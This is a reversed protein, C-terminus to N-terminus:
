PIRQAPTPIRARRASTDPVAGRRECVPGTGPGIVFITNGAPDKFGFTRADWVEDRPPQPIEVRDRWAHYCADADQVHLAVCADRGHGSMPCDITLELGGRALGMIGTSGDATDQWQLTFGLRDIYFARTAALDDGPLVAVAREAVPATAAPGESFCLIYGDPDEVYFDTTGWPREELPRSVAVGRAVLEDHIERVGSVSLFADLHEGRRRQAREEEVKPACKLHLTAGDRSVSAYFGEYVFDRQFGLRQEYFALAADLSSVLFQPAAGSIAAM